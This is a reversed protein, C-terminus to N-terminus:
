ASAVKQEIKPLQMFLAARLEQEIFAFRDMCAAGEVARRATGGSRTPPYAGKRGQAQSARPVPVVRYPTRFSARRPPPPHGEGCTLPILRRRYYQAAVRRRKGMLWVSGPEVPKSMVVTQDAIKADYGEARLVSRWDEGSSSLAAVKVFPFGRKILEQWRELTENGRTSSPFLAEM